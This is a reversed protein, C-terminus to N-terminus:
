LIKRRETQNKKSKVAQQFYVNNQRITYLALVKYTNSSKDMKSFICMNEENYSVHNCEDFMDLTTGDVLKVAFCNM